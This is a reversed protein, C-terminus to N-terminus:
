KKKEDAPAVRVQISGSELAHTLKDLKSNIGKLEDVMQQRQGGADPIQAHAPTVPGQGTWQGMLVLGQLVLVAV